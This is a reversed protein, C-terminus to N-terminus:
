AHGRAKGLELLANIRHLREVETLEPPEAVPAGGVPGIAGAQRLGPRAPRQRRRGPQQGQGRPRGRDGGAGRHCVPMAVLWPASRKPSTVLSPSTKPPPKTKEPEPCPKDTM